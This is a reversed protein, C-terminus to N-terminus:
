SRSKEYAANISAGTEFRQSTIKLLQPIASLYWYTHVLRRHGLYTTLALIKQGVDQNNQHWQILCRVAFTHRLDHVRPQPSQTWSLSKRLQRFVASVHKYGPARGWSSLFFASSKPQAFTRQREQRYSELAAIASAHLPLCRAHGGKGCRVTLLGAQWDIDRDELALAESIRLGTCTLLGLLTRYLNPRWSGEPGLQRTAELLAIIEQPTYLHVPGRRSSPGFFGRPPVQTRPDYAVWFQAFRRAADLRRAWWLRNAQQPLKAWNLALRVTLPGRHHVQEAYRVLGALQIGDTVLAFGLKRRTQLYYAVAKRLSQNKKM